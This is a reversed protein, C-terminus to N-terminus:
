ERLFRYSRVVGNKLTIEFTQENKEVIGRIVFGGPLTPSKEQSHVYLLTTTGDPNTERKAPPGLIKTLDAETTKGLKIEQIQAASIDNGETTSATYYCGGLPLLLFFFCFFTRKMKEDLIQVM